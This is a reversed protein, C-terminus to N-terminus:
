TQIKIGRTKTKKNKKLKQNQTVLERRQLLEFRGQYSAATRPLHPRLTLHISTVRRRCEYRGASERWGFFFVRQIEASSLSDRTQEENQLIEQKVRLGGCTMKWVHSKRFRDHREVLSYM